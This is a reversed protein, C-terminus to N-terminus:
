RISDSPPVLTRMKCAQHDCRSVVLEMPALNDSIICLNNLWFLINSPESVTVLLELMNPYSFIRKFYLSLDHVYNLTSTKSSSLQKAGISRHLLHGM